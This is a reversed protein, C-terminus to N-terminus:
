SRLGAATDDFLRILSVIEPSVKAAPGTRRSRLWAKGDHTLWIPKGVQETLYQAVPCDTCRGKAPNNPYKELIARPDLLDNLQRVAAKLTMM